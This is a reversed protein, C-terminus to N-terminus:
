STWRLNCLMGSPGVEAVGGCFGNVIARWAGGGLSQMVGSGEAREMDSM